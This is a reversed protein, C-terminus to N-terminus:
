GGLVFAPSITMQGVVTLDGLVFTLDGLTFTLDDLIFTFYGLIFTLDGLIFTFSQTVQGVVTLDGVFFILDCM